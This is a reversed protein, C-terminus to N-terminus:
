GLEPACEVLAEAAMIAAAVVLSSLINWQFALQRIPLAL